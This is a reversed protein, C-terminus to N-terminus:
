VSHSREHFGFKVKSKKLNNDGPNQLGHLIFCGGLFFETVRFIMMQTVGVTFVQFCIELKNMCNNPAHYFIYVSRKFM